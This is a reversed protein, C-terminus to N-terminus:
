VVKEIQVAREDRSKFRKLRWPRNHSILLRIYIGHVLLRNEKKRKNKIQKKM